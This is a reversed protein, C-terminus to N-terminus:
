SEFGDPPHLKRLTAGTFTASGDEVFFGLHGTRRSMTAHCLLVRGNVSVEIYPGWAVVRLKIPRGDPVLKCYNTQLTEHGRGLYPPYTTRVVRHLEIAM